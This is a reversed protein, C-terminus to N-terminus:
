RDEGAVMRFPRCGVIPDYADSGAKDKKGRYNGMLQSMAEYAPSNADRCLADGKEKETADSM